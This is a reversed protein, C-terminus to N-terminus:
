KVRELVQVPKVRRHQVAVDLGGIELEDRRALDDKWVEAEGLAAGPLHSAGPALAHESLGGVIGREFLNLARARVLAAIEIREARPEVVQERIHLRRVRERARCGDHVTLGVREPGRAPNVFFHGGGHRCREHPRQREVDFVTRASGGLHAVVQV